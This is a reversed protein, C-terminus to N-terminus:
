AAQIGYLTFTSGISFTGTSTIDIRTIAATSRWLNVIADTGYQAANARTLTTKYTTTNSYNQISTISNYEGSTTTTGSASDLYAATVNAIRTSSAASGSGRVATRSYNTGTDSNFQMYLDQNGASNAANIVLVLDTYSGSISIFALTTATSGLTTTAIPTYTSPM